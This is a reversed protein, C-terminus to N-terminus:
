TQGASSSRIARRAPMVRRSRQASQVRSGNVSSLVEWTETQSFVSYFCAPPAPDPHSAQDKKGGDVLQQGGRDQYPAQWPRTVGPFGSWWWSDIAGVREATLKLPKISM